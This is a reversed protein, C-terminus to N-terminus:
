QASIILEEIEAIAPCQVGPACVPSGTFTLRATGASQVAYRWVCAKLAANFYGEPALDGLINGSDQKQLGWRTTARLQIEITKGVSVTVPHDADFTTVVFPNGGSDVPIRQEPCGNLAATGPTLMPKLTATATGAAGPSAAPTGGCGAILVLAAGVIAARIFPSHRM